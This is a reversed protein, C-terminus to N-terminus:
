NDDFRIMIMEGVQLGLLNAAHGKNMALELFGASNFLALREGEPVDSYRLSISDISFDATRFSIEFGRNRSQEKMMKHTINTLANGYHDVYIVMGRIYDGGFVPQLSSRQSYHETPKGIVELTGGRALHCAAKTYLDRLPFTLQDTDLNMNIEVILDPRQEAILSFFGNDPAIIFQNKYRIGLHTYEDMAGTDVGILHVTNKPFDNIVNQLVFAAQGIDFANINNSIDVVQIDDLQSHIKAKVSALYFDKESLDSIITIIPM